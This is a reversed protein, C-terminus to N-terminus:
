PNKEKKRVRIDNFAAFSAAACAIVSPYIIDTFGAAVPLLFLLIGAIKNAATHPLFIGRCLIFYIIRVVAIVATWVWIFLPIHLVPLLKVACVAVFIWDAASDLKAGFDSETHTKRAIFGDAIDTIGCLIYFVRFSVSLPSLFILVVSFIVRCATVINAAKGLGSM